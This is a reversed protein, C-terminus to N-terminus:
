FYSLAEVTALSVSCVPATLSEVLFIIVSVLWTSPLFTVNEYKQYRGRERERERKINHYLQNIAQHSCTPNCASRVSGYIRCGFKKNSNSQIQLLHLSKCTQSLPRPPPSSYKFPTSTNWLLYYYECPNCSYNTM